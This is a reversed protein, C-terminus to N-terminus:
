IDRKIYELYIDLQEEAGRCPHRLSMEVEVHGFSFM